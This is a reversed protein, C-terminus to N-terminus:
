SPRFKGTGLLHVEFIVGPYTAVDATNGDYVVRIRNSDMVIPTNLLAFTVGARTVPLDVVESSYMSFGFADRGDVYRLTVGEVTLEVDFARFIIAM